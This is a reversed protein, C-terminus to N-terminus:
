PSEEKVPTEPVSPETEGPRKRDTAAAAAATVFSAGCSRLLLACRNMTAGTTLVDDCLLIRMGDLSVDRAAFSAVNAARASANLSHQAMDSREKRLLDNRYPVTLEAAIRRGILEAQNYGRKRLKARHMPVATVCDFVGYDPCHRIRQAIMNGAFAAFNTNLSNKLEWIARVAPDDPEGTYRACIVAMDYDPPHTGCKCRLMGCVHCYDDHPLLIKEECAPCLLEDSHLFADCGPCRNPLLLNLLSAQLTKLIM